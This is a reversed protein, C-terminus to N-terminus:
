WPRWRPPCSFGPPPFPWYQPEVPQPPGLESSVPQTFVAVHGRHGAPSRSQPQHVHSVTGNSIDEAKFPPWDLTFRFVIDSFISEPRHLWEETEPVCCEFRGAWEVKTPFPLRDVLTSEIGEALPTLQWFRLRQDIGTFHISSDPQTSGCFTSM